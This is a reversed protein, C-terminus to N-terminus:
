QAQKINGSGTVKTDMKQPTGQFYIDGSGTVTADLKEYANVQINGSGTIKCKSHTVYYNFAHIDGSGTVTFSSKRSAGTLKANGSGTIKAEIEECVLSDAILSGSGSITLDFDRANVEGQLRIDGSGTVNVEQLNHSYTYITLKTPKIISDKKASIILKKDKVQVDLSALINEDTHILLYPASDSFQQYYVDAPINLSIEDYDTIALQQDVLQHNGYIPRNGTFICSVFLPFAAFLSVFLLTFRKM